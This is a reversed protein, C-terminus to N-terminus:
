RQYPEPMEAWAIPNALYNHDFSKGNFYSKDVWRTGSQRGEVTLLYEGPEDPLDSYIDHWDLATEREEVTPANDIKALVFDMGAMYSEADMGDPIKTAVVEFADADIPRM